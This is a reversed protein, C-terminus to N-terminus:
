KIYKLINNLYFSIVITLAYDYVLFVIQALLWILIIPINSLFIANGILLKFITSSIILMINFFIIKLIIEQFLNRKKEIFNKVIGYIGFFLIYILITNYPIFILGLISVGFYILIASKSSLTVIAVPILCSALTLFTLKNTPLISSIYLFIISLAILISSLSIVKAKM